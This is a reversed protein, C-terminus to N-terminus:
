LPLLYSTITFINAHFFLVLIFGVILFPAFPIESKMTITEPLYPLHTKWRRLFSQILLLVISILAGVWFSLVVMSLASSYGAIIGLPLALKADGLGLWRGKSVLWLGAFFLAASVGALLDYLLPIVQRTEMYEYGLLLFAFVGVLITLEDPIITHRMDYVVIIICVSILGAYLAFLWLNPASLSWLFAFSAGTLLEVVLYRNPIYAECHRCRARLALYSFIPFLEYWKLTTGCSMCHSRGNLSRGTHIRYIVVNLFSGVIAGFVFVMIYWFYGFNEAFIEM